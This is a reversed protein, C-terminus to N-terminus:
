LYQLMKVDDNLTGNQMKPIRPTKENLTLKNLTFITKM